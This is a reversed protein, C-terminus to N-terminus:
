LTTEGKANIQSEAIEKYVECKELLEEHTGEALIRGKDLVIIKDSGIVTFIRQSVLIVLSNKLAKRMNKRIEFDSLTDLSSFSDDFIYVPTNRLLARAICIKQKQGGSFNKGEQAVERSLGEKTLLFSELKALNLCELVKEKSANPNGYRINYEIDGTFLTSKQPVFSVKERLTEQSFDKINIGDILIEGSTVDYFRPILSVLTSKGAGTAGIISIVEGRKASFSINKLVMNEKRGYTFSVNKFEIKEIFSNKFHKSEIPDKVSPELELVDFIRNISIFAHPLSFLSMVLTLFAGIVMCSYQTFAMLDGIQMASKAIQEAGLWIILINLFNMIVILIPSVRVVLKNIYSAIDSLDKNVKDFRNEEWKLNGFANAVIIGSLREKIVLNFKDLLKQLLEMKPLVLMLIIFIVFSSIVAGLLIIWSLSASKSIAMILGGILMLPPAFMLAASMITEKVQAVDNITRTILSSTTIKDFEKQSFSEVKYFIDKRLQMLIGSSMKSLFYSEVCTFTLAIITILIMLMGTKLIYNRQIKAVDAKLELYAQKNIVAAAQHADFSELDQKDLEELQLYSINKFEPILNYLSELDIYFDNKDLSLFENNQGTNNLYKFLRTNCTLFIEDLTKKSDKEKYFDKKLIYVSEEKAKPYKKLYYGYETELYNLEDLGNERKLDLFEYAKTIVDKEEMKMFAVLLSHTYTSMVEPAANEIGNQRIGVDVIDAMLTPLFLSCVQGILFGIFIVTLAKKYPKAYKFIKIFKKIYKM